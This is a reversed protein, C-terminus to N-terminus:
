YRSSGSLAEGDPRDSGLTFFFRAGEGPASEAWVQGHHREAIRQVKVLAAGAGPFEQATHLRQFSRFLKDAQAMDFGEGNDRVVYVPVAGVADAQPPVLGFNIGTHSRRSTFKWANDLLAQLMQRILVPDAHVVLGSQISVSALRAPSDRQLADMVSHAVASLDVPQLHLQVRSLNALALLSDTLEDAQRVGAKIREIYHMAREDKVTRGLLDSFGGIAIFPQRLDHAVSYAFEELDRNSAQLQATRRQVREELSANLRLIDGEARKRGTIDQTVGIFSMLLGAEDRVASVSVDAWLICGDKRIFKKEMHFHDAQGTLM